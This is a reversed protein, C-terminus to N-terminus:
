PTIMIMGNGCVHVGQDSHIIIKEMSRNNSKAICAICTHRVRIWGPAGCLSILLLIYFCLMLAKTLIYVSNLSKLTGNSSFYSSLEWNCFNYFSWTHNMPSQSSKTDISNWKEVAWPLMTSVEFDVLYSTHSPIDKINADYRKFDQKM